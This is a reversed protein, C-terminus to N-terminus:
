GIMGGHDGLTEYHRKLRQLAIRLVIKGSRASWGMRKEAQELGELFCCCRLAVDGLGPGLERLAANVRARAASAGEAPGDHGFFAGRDGGTLFRDWNQAVRPGLQAVEFDERLREGAAVLDHTLFPKGDKEKRRALISLPSEARNFRIREARATKGEDWDRHQEAFASAPETAGDRRAAELAQLRKLAARGATSIDYITVRGRNRCVIWDKLAFAEAVSRDVVATRTTQGEASERLIAAKEMDRAVAMFSGPENLRRLIRLAERSITAEDAVPRCSRMTSSMYPTEKHSEPQAVQGGLRSLADDILPDDRRTEVRRVQRMVTSPHCGEIRALARLSVGGETHALYLRAAQPLWAPASQLQRHTVM